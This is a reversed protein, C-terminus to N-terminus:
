RQGGLIVLVDELRSFDVSPTIELTQFMGYDHKIINTITGIPLGKPFIGGTGATIVTDGIQVDKSRLAYNLTLTAGKGRAVGRTRNHQILASVESAADNALLVRSTHTSCKITRGVIGEAVVVALGERLGDSLGKDITITRFWSSADVAIVRAPIEPFHANDHFNLLKRLRNNEQAVEQLQLLQERQKRLTQTLLINEQRVDILNIYNNWLITLETHTSDVIRYFPSTLQLIGREFLTTKNQQRLSNSYVLLACLFLSAFLLTSQHKKLFELM